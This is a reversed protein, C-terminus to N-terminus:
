YRYNNWSQIFSAINWVDKFVYRLVDMLDDKHITERDISGNRDSALVSRVYADNPLRAHALSVRNGASDCSCGSVDDGQNVSVARSVGALDGPEHFRKQRARIEGLPRPEKVAAAAAVDGAQTAKPM